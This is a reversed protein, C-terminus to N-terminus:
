LLGKLEALLKRAEPSRKAAATYLDLERQQDVIQRLARAIERRRAARQKEDHDPAPFVWRTALPDSDATRVIEVLANNAICHDGQRLNPINCLYSYERGQPHFRVYVVYSKHSYTTKRPTKM